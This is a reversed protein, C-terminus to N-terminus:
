PGTIYVIEPPNCFRPIWTTNSLGRSIVLRGDVVGGTLKPFMGQDPSYVGQWRRKRLDYFRWQGGHAHGSLILEVPAPVRGIYEPHHMLLIHFGEAAAFEELWGTEPAPGGELHEALMHLPSLPDESRRNISYYGSSQGGILLRGGLDFPVYSNELLTVGTSRIIELDVDTLYAEHNGISVFTPAIGACATLLKMANPSEEMRIGRRPRRGQVFDGTVAILGPKNARLSALFREPPADHTDSVLAVAAPCGPIEYHTEIM